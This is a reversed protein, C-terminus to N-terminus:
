RRPEAHFCIRWVRADPNWGRNIERWAEVFAFAGDFGEAIADENTMAGLRVQTVDDITLYGISPLGRGPQVAYTGGIRYACADRYWPSRPNSSVLRRTQTKMGAMVAEALDPRFIM